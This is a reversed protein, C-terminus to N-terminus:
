VNDPTNEEVIVISDLQELTTAADIEASLDSEWDFCGQIYKSGESVIYGLEPKTLNLWVTPFKWRIVEDDAMMVYKQLFIDRNGRSTDCWVDQAQITLTVGINEKKWREDSVISKLEGKVLDIPKDQVSWTATAQIEENEDDYTWVPGQHQHIKSNALDEYVVTCKRIKIGPYPEFPVKAEDAQTVIVEEDLEDYLIDSIYRPKWAIPGLIVFNANNNHDTIVYM